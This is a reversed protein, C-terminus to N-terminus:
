YSTVQSRRPHPVAVSRAAADVGRGLPMLAQALEPSAALLQARRAAAAAMAEKVRRMAEGADKDHRAVQRKLARVQTKARQM